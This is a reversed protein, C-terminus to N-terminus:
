RNWSVGEDRRKQILTGLQRMARYTALAIGTLTNPNDNPNRKSAAATVFVKYRHSIPCRGRYLVTAITFNGDFEATAIINKKPPLPLGERKKLKNYSSKVIEPDIVDLPVGTTYMQVLM